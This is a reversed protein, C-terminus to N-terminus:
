PVKENKRLTGKTGLLCVINFPPFARDQGGHRGEWIEEKGKGLEGRGGM